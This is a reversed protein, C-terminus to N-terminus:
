KELRKKQRRNEQVLTNRLCYQAASQLSLKLSSPVTNIKFEQIPANYDIEKILFNYTFPCHIYTKHMKM